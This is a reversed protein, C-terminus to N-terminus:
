KSQNKLNNVDIPFKKDPPYFTKFNNLPSVSRARDETQKSQNIELKKTEVATMALYKNKQSGIKVNQFEQEPQSFM